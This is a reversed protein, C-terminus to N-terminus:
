GEGFPREGAFLASHATILAVIRDIVTRVERRHRDDNHMVIWQGERLEEITGGARELLPDRDGAFCPLVGKGVGARILDHLTRPTNAWAAITIGPQADVWNASRTARDEPTIAVWDERQAGPRNRARFPAQAVEGTRRAALNPSDPQANRVGIEVERHAIDLKAETTKFAIRFPDSPTWLRAFNETFFNATWTGVSIRVTARRDDAELWEEIPRASAEVAIAKALLMRGHETLEYGTQRRVFLPRGLVNELALMRRGVTAPSSGLEAAAASLGGGRAVRVFIRLDNWDLNKM